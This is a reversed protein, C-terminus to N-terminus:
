ADMRARMHAARITELQCHAYAMTHVTSAEIFDPISNSILAWATRDYCKIKIGALIMIIM